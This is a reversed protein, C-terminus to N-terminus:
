AVEEDLARDVQSQGVQHESTMTVSLTEVLAIALGSVTVSRFTDALQSM